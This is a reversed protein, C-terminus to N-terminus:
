RSRIGIREAFRRRDGEGQLLWRLLDDELDIVYKATLNRRKMVSRQSRALVRYCKFCLPERASKVKVAKFHLARLFRPPQHFGPSGNILVFVREFRRFPSIQAPKQHPALPLRVGSRKFAM